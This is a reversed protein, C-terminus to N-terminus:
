GFISRCCVLQAERQHPVSSIYSHRFNKNFFVSPLYLQSDDDDDDDEDDDDDDDIISIGMMITMMMIMM